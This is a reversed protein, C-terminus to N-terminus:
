LNNNIDNDHRLNGVHVLCLKSTYDGPCSSQRRRRPIWSHSALGRFFDTLGNPPSKHKPQNPLGKLGDMGVREGPFKSDCFYLFCLFQIREFVSAEKLGGPDIM